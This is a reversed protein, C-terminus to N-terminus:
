QESDLKVVRVDDDVLYNDHATDTPEPDYGAEILREFYREVAEDYTAFGGVMPAPEGAEVYVIYFPKAYPNTM